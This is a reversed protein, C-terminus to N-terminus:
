VSAVGFSSLGTLVAHANGRQLAVALSGTISSLLSAPPWLLALPSVDPPILLCLLNSAEPGLGGTTEMVFPFFRTGLPAAM